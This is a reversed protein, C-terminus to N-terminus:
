TMMSRKKLSDIAKQSLLMGLLEDHERLDLSWGPDGKKNQGYCLGCIVFFHIM